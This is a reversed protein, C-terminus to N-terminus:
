GQFCTCSALTQGQLHIVNTSLMVILVTRLMNFFKIMYITVSWLSAHM